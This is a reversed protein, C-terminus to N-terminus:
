AAHLVQTTKRIEHRRHQNTVADKEFFDIKRGGFIAQLETLMPALDDWGWQFGPELTVLDDVDSDPGFDERVVSGFLALEKVRWWRCFAEIGAKPVEIRPTM